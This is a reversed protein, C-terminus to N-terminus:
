GAPESDAKTESTPAPLELPEEPAALELPEVPAALEAQPKARKVRARRAPKPAAAAADVPALSPAETPAAAAVPASEAVAPAPAPDASSSAAADTAPPVWPRAIRTPPAQTTQPRIRYLMLLGFFGVLIALTGMAVGIALGSDEGGSMPPEFGSTCIAPAPDCTGIVALRLPVAIMSLMGYVLALGAIFYLATALPRGQHYLLATVALAIAAVGFPVAAGAIRNTGGAALLLPLIAGTVALGCAIWFSWLVRLERQSNTDM